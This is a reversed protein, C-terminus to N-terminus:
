LEGKEVKEKVVEKLTKDDPVYITYKKNFGKWEGM